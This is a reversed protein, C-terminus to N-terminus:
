SIALEVEAMAARMAAESDIGRVRMDLAPLTERALKKLEKRARNSMGQAYVADRLRLLIFGCECDICQCLIDRGCEERLPSTGAQM